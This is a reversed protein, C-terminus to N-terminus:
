GRQQILFSQGLHLGHVARVQRRSVRVRAARYGQERDHKDGQRDVAGQQQHLKRSPRKVGIEVDKKGRVVGLM